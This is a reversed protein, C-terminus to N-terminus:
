RPVGSPRRQRAKTSHKEGRGLDALLKVTNGDLGGLAEEQMRYAIMRALLDKPLVSPPQAAFMTRWRARLADLGLSRVRDIEAEVTKPDMSREAM